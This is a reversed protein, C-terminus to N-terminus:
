IGWVFSFSIFRVVTITVTLPNLFMFNFLSGWLWKPRITLDWSVYFGYSVLTKPVITRHALQLYEVPAIPDEDKPQFIAGVGNTNRRGVVIQSFETNVSLM